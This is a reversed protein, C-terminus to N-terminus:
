IWKTRTEQMKDPAELLARPVDAVSDVVSFLARDVERVFSADIFGDITKVVNSWYGNM